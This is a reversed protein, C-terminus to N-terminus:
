AADKVTDDANKRAKRSIRSRLRAAQKAIETDNGLAGMAGNLKFSASRYAANMAEQTAATTDRLLAKLANHAAEAKVTDTTRNQLETIWNDADVGKVALADRNKALFEIVGECFGITQTKTLAM